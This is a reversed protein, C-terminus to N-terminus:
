KARIKDALASMFGSATLGAFIAQGSTYGTVTDVNMQVFALSLGIGTFLGFSFRYKYEDFFGPLKQNLLFIEEPTRTAEPKDRILAIEEERKSKNMFYPWLTVLSSGILGGIVVFAINVIIDDL